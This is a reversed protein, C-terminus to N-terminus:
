FPLGDNDMDPLSSVADEVFNQTIGSRQPAPASQQSENTIKWAELTNFYKVEGQPNTWARGRINIFAQVMEGEMFNDLIGCRDQTVQLLIEQPYEGETRIVFERKAFKESVQQKAFVKVLTGKLDM